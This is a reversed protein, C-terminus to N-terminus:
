HINELYRKIMKGAIKFLPKGHYGVLNEIDLKSIIKVSKIATVPDESFTAVPGSFEGKWYMMLDGAVLTKCKEIYVSIHGPTHGPTHIVKFGGAYKFVAGTNPIPSITISKNEADVDAGASKNLGILESVTLNPFYKRLEDIDMPKVPLAQLGRYFPIDADGMYCKTKKNRKMIKALNGTHDGHYHTVFIWMIDDVKYGLQGLAVELQGFSGPPGTDILVIGEKDIGVVPNVPNTEGLFDQTVGDLVYWEECIRTV